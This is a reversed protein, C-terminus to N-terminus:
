IKGSNLWASFPEVHWIHKAYELIARDSSFKAMRAVNLISRRTWNSTDAYALGVQQQCDVYSRYDAMLLYEDHHLLHDTLPRFLETDGNSFAGGNILDITM